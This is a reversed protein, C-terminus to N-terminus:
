KKEEGWKQFFDKAGAPDAKITDAGPTWNAPCGEGDHADAYQFAKLQRLTEPVSRGVAEDNIQMARIKGSPDIIYLGRLAVGCLEDAEDEVLVGYDRCLKKNIDAILPINMDGLGGDDRPTQIWALHTYLSDVSVAAVETNIEQFEKISDSFAAIETPCVFTFDLPYFFLVLWKGKYMDLSVDIFSQDFVAKAKFDPAMQRPLLPNFAAAQALALLVVAAINACKM